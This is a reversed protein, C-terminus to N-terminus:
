KHAAISNAKRAVIICGTGRESRAFMDLAKFAPYFIFHVSSAPKNFFCFSLFQFREYAEQASRSPSFAVSELHLDFGALLKEYYQLTPLNQIKTGFAAQLERTYDDYSGPARGLRKSVRVLWSNEDYAKRVGLRDLPNVFVIRGGPKLVRCAERLFVRPDEVMPLVESMLVVDFLDESFPLETGSVRRFELRGDLEPPIMNKDVSHIDIGVAKQARRAIEYTLYGSGCGFDLVTSEADLDLAALIDGMQLRKMVNPAGVMRRILNKLPNKHPIAGPAPM